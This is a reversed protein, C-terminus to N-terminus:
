PDPEEPTSFDPIKILVPEANRGRWGIAGLLRKIEAQAAQWELDLESKPDPTIRHQTLLLKSLATSAQSILRGGEIPNTTGARIARRTQRILRQLTIIQESASNPAPM